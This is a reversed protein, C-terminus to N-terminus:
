LQQLINIDKVDLYIRQTTGVEEGDVTIPYPKQKFQAKTGQLMYDLKSISMKYIIPKNLNRSRIYRAENPKHDINMDKLIYKTVYSCAKQLDKIKSLSCHGYKYTKLDLYGNKNLVLHSEPINALLGHFHLATDKHEEFIFLYKLKIGKNIYSIKLWKRIAKKVEDLNYRDVKKMDFTGTFFYDWKNARAIDEINRKSKNLAIRKLYEEDHKVGNEEESKKGKRGRSDRKQYGYYYQIEATNGYIRLVTNYGNM